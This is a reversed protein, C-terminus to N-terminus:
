FNYAFIVSLGLLGIFVSFPRKGKKFGCLFSIAKHNNASAKEDDAVNNKGTAM